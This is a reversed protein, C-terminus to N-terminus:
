ENPDYDLPQLMVSVNISTGADIIGSNPRVCYRRPATTKVKFCVSRDTPNGLKLNTTVGDAFPEKFRLEHQPELSLGAGSKGHEEEQQEATAAGPPPLALRLSSPSPPLPFSPPFFAPPPRGRGTYDRGALRGQPSPNKGSPRDTSPTTPLRCQRATGDRAPPPPESPATLHVCCPANLPPYLDPEQEPDIPGPDFPDDPESDPGSKLSLRKTGEGATAAYPLLKAVNVAQLRHFASFVQQWTILLKKAKDDSRRGLEDGTHKWVTINLTGEQSFWSLQSINGGHTKLVKQLVNVHNRQERTLSQGM